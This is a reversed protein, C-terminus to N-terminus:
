KGEWFSWLNERRVFWIGKIKRGKIKGIRLFRRINWAKWPLWEELKKVDFYEIGEIWIGYYKKEEEEIEEKTKFVVAIKIERERKKDM